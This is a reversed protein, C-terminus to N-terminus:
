SIALKLEFIILKAIKEGCHYETTLEMTYSPLQIFFSLHLSQHLVNLQHGRLTRARLSPRSPSFIAVSSMSRRRQRPDSVVHPSTLFSVHSKLNETGIKTLLGGYEVAVVGNSRPTRCTAFALANLSTLM